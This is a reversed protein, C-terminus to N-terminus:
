TSTPSDFDSASGHCCVPDVQPTLCPSMLPDIRGQPVRLRATNINPLRQVVLKSTDAPVLLPMQLLQPTSTEADTDFLVRKEERGWRRLCHFSSSRATRPRGHGVGLGMNM